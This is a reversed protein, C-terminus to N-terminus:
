ELIQAQYPSDFSKVLDAIWEDPITELIQTASIYHMKEGGNCSLKYTDKTKGYKSVRTLKSCKQCFIENNSSFIELGNLLPSFLKDFADETPVHVHDHDM